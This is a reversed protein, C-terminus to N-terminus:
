ESKAKPEAKDTKGKADARERAARKAALEEKAIDLQVSQLEERERAKAEAAVRAANRGENEVRERERRFQILWEVHPCSERAEIKGRRNKVLPTPDDSCPRQLDEPLNGFDAEIKPSTYRVGHKLPCKGHEVFGHTHHAELAKTVDAKLTISGANGLLINVVGGSPDVFRKVEGHPRKEIRPEGNHTYSLPKAARKGVDNFNRQSLKAM